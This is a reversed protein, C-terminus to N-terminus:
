KKKSPPRRGKSELQASVRELVLEIVRDALTEVVDSVSNAGTNSTARAVQASGSPPLGVQAWANGVADVQKSNAGYLGLAAQYFLDAAQQFTSNEPLTPLATYWIKGAQEWANGGLAAAALYFARNPIGSNLHVGGNDDDTNVYGSMDAPQPDSGINPDNTYATGPAKMSRLAGGHVLLGQGILWDATDATQGLKYQKILSGFVDSMSENLAGSQGQYVLSAEHQTVGHTLEHGIVDLCITFSNFIQGDGDGFVMQSGNWFANDYRNGYHVTADLRMGRNDISNRNYAAKYFNYTDGLGNYANIADQDHTNGIDGEGCILTGPLNTSGGGNYITRRLGGTATALMTAIPGVARRFGRLDATQLLTKLAGDRVRVDDHELLKKLVYPPIICQIPLRSDFTM